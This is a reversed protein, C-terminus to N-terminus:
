QFTFRNLFGYDADNETSSGSMSILQPPLWDDLGKSLPPPPPSPLPRDGGFLKEEGRAEIQDLFFLPTAGRGGSVRAGGRSGGNPKCISGFHILGYDLPQFDLVCDEPNLFLFDAM